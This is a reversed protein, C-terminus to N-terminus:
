MVVGFGCVALILVILVWNLHLIKAPGTPVRRVSYELYSM